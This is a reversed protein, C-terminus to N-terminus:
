LARGLMGANADNQQNRRGDCLAESTHMSTPAGMRQLGPTASKHPRLAIRLKLTTGYQVATPPPEARRVERRRLPVDSNAAGALAAVTVIRAAHYCDVTTLDPGSKGSKFQLRIQM